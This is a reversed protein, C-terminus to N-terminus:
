ESNITLNESVAGQWEGCRIAGRRWIMWARWLIIVRAGNVQLLPAHTTRRGDFVSYIPWVLLFVAAAAALAFSIATLRAKM